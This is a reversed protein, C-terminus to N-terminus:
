RRGPSGTAEVLAAVIARPAPLELVVWRVSLLDLLRPSALHEARSPDRGPVLHLRGHWPQHPQPHFYEFYAAPMSPEYDPMAFLFCWAFAFRSPGRFLASLPLRHYLAFFPTHPGLMVLAVILALGAFFLAQGRRARSLFAACALPLALAPLTLMREFPGVGFP